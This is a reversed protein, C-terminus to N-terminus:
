VAGCHACVGVRHGGALGSRASAFCAETACV